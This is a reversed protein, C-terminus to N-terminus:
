DDRAVKRKLAALERDIEKAQRRAAKAVAKESRARAKAAARADRERERETRSPPETAEWPMAEGCASCVWVADDGSYVEVFFVHFAEKEDSEVFDTTEACDPCRRRERRGGRKAKVRARRGFLVFM